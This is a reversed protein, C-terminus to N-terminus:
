ARAADGVPLVGGDVLWGGGSPTFGFGIWQYLNLPSRL